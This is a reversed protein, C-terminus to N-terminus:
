SQAVPASELFSTPGTRCKLFATRFWHRTCLPKAEALLTQSVRGWISM